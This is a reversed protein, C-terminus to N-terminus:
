AIPQGVADHDRVADGGAVVLDVNVAMGKAHFTNTLNINTNVPNRRHETHYKSYWTASM